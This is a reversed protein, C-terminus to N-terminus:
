VARGGRYELTPCLCFNSTHVNSESRELEAHMCQGAKLVHLGSVGLGSCARMPQLVRGIHRTAHAQAGAERPRMRVSNHHAAM